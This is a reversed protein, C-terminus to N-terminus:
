SPPHILGYGIAKSVVHIRNLANLKYRATEIFARVTREKVGLVDAIVETNMGNACLQLVETERPSLSPRTVPGAVSESELISQHVHSAVRQFDGMYSRLFLEWEQDLMQSTISFLAHQGAPGRIPISMGSIGVKHEAADGLFSRRQRSKWDLRSWNFPFQSENGAEVVPDLAMYNNAMYREVWAAPYTLRLYPGDDTLGKINTAHYVVHSLGYTEKVDDFLEGIDTRASRDALSNLFDRSNGTNKM